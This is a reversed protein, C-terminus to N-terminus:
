KISLTELRRNGLDEPFSGPSSGVETDMRCTLLQPLAAVGGPERPGTSSLARGLRAESEARGRM